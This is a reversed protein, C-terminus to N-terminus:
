WLTNYECIGFFMLFCKGLVTSVFGFLCCLMNLCLDLCLACELCIHCMNLVDCLDYFLVYFVLCFILDRFYYLYICKFVCM